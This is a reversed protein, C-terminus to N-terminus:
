PGVVGGVMVSRWIQETQDDAPFFAEVRLEQATVDVPTGVTSVISFWRLTEGAFRLNIDIVPVLAGVAHPIATFM